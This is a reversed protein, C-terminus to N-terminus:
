AIRLSRSHIIFAFPNGLPRTTLIIRPIGGEYIIAALPSVLTSNRMPILMARIGIRSASELNRDFSLVHERYTEAHQDGQSRERHM